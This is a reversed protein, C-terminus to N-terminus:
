PADPFNAVEDVSGTLSTASRGTLLHELAHLTQGVDHGGERQVQEALPCTLGVDTYGRELGNM